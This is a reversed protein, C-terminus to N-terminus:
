DEESETETRRLYEKANNAVREMMENFMELEEPSFGETIASNWEGLIQRVLPLADYAKETPYVLTVRKDESSRERTVYGHKELYALSRTVNSKNIFQRQSIAEQSIGPHRCVTLIYSHHSECLESEKLKESRWM